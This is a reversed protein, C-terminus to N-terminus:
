KPASSPYRSSTRMLASAFDVSHSARCAADMRPSTASRPSGSDRYREPEGALRQGPTHARALTRDSPPGIDTIMRRKQSTADAVAAAAKDSTPFRELMRDFAGIADSFAGQSYYCEAISYMANDALASDPFQDAFDQFGSIALTYGPELPAQMWDGEWITGHQLDHRRM